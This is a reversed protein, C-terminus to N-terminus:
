ASANKFEGRSTASVGNIGITILIPFQQTLGAKSFANRAAQM